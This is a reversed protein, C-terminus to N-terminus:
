RVCRKEGNALVIPSAPHLPDRVRRAVRVPQPGYSLPLLPLAASDLLPLRAFALFRISAATDTCAIAAVRRCLTPMARATWHLRGRARRSFVGYLANGRTTLLDPIRRVLARRPRPPKPQVGDSGTLRIIGIATGKTAESASPLGSSGPKAAKCIGTGGIRIPPQDRRHGAHDISYRAIM